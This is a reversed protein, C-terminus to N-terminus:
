ADLIAQIAAATTETRTVNEGFLASWKSIHRATTRSGALGERQYLLGEGPVFAAVPTSYSILVMTGAQFPGVETMNSGISAIKKTNNNTKM